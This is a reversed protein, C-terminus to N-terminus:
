LIKLLLPISLKKHQAHLYKRLIVLRDSISQMKSHYKKKAILIATGGIESSNGIETPSIQM